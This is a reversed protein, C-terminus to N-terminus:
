RLRIAIKYCVGALLGAIGIAIVTLLTHDMKTGLWVMLVVLGMAALMNPLMYIVVAAGQKIVEVENEWDTRMHWVGCVCGWATSFACLAVGLILYLVTNLLPVKFSLCMCLVAFLMFPVTLYMNFLMKGQRITKKEIPLSQLIWYNKGELSPSCATTAVMGVFFYVVFPIAPQLIAPDIPAGQTIIAIIRDFGLVLTIIGLLAALLEGVAANTMYVTSGTLRKFEKFAIANVVSSKKQRRMRYNKSAAHSRIASNIQRYSNGVIYFVAAFLAFSLGTLALMKPIDTRTVAAAFWGAPFYIGSARGTMMSIGSLVAEIKDDGILAEIIYRLSFSLVIIVFTFITQILNTKKFGSSIKAILFGIFSAALMPIVPLILSLIIWIIYTYFPPRAYYAYGALMAASISLYWPLSKIYMYLFKCAAVTRTKFPLAMLMDYEKFNFLYGNSKLFTFVFALSSIVLACMVPVAGTMGIKGFGVCILISYAILMACLLTLGIRSGIIKRKKKRDYTHRRINGLSSSLLMTKLLISYKKM